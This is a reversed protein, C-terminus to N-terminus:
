RCTALYEVLDRIQAPTLLASMAPMVSVAPTRSRISSLPVKKESGDVLRLIVHSKNESLFFGSDSGGNELSLTMNGYGPVIVASPHLLSQLLYDRGKLGSKDLGPGVIGGIGDMKHCTLCQATGHSFVLDKGRAVDGGELLVRSTAELDNTGFSSRYANVAKRISRDKSADAAMLVDLQISVALRGKILRDLDKKLRKVAHKSELKALAKYAGQQDALVDSDLARTVHPLAAAGKLKVLALLAATRVGVSPDDLLMPLVGELHEPGERQLTAIGALRNPDSMTTNKVRKVVASVDRLMGFQGALDAAKSRLKGSGSSQLENLSDSVLARIDRDRDGPYPRMVGLTPDVPHPDSWHGLAYLATLRTREKLAPNMALALVNKAHQEQGLRFNIQIMREFATISPMRNIAVPGAFRKAHDALEKYAGAIPMAHIARVAEDVLFPDADALFESIRADRHRRMALLVVLREAASAGRRLAWVDDVPMGTVGMVIAHRLFVDQNNNQKAMALLPRLAPAYALKGLAIAAEAQVHASKDTLLPILKEGGRPDGSEGLVRASQRRVHEDDDDLFAFLRGAVTPEVPVLMGIGWIGHLRKLPRDRQALAMSFYKAVRKGRAALEFQAALRVRRDDHGLLDSLREPRLGKFGDRFLRETEKVSAQQIAEPHTVAYIDGKTQGEAANRTTVYDAVYLKGDYGFEAAIILGGQWFTHRDTLAFGAGASEVGFTIVGGRWDSFFFHDDYVAGMSRGPNFSLGCSGGDIYDVAPLVFAPQGEFAMKWYGESTWAVQPRPWKIDSFGIATYFTQLNEFGSQWGLDAGEPLYCLRSRDNQGQNNDVTFLNGFQDFALDQPNRNGTTYRELNRGDKDCRFVAGADLDVLHKGDRTKVDYGRDGTSFYLKGDPGWELGHLDHGNVGMRIGFGELLIKRIDSKGDGERDKMAWLNPINAYYVTGDRATVSSGNGDLPHRFEAFLTREDAVGDRNVDTLRVVRDASRTFWDKPFKGKAIWKKYLAERQAVQTLRLEDLMWFTKRRTDEVGRYLRGSEAVYMRGFGDFCLSVPNDTMGSDAFRVLSYGPDLTVNAARASLTGGQPKKPLQARMVIQDAMIFGGKKESADILEIHARKGILPHVYWFGARLQNSGAGTVTRVVSGDVVLNMCTEGAIAGGGILFSLYGESIEFAPSILKGTAKDGGHSSNAFGKGRNGHVDPQQGVPGAAPRTGFASGEVNWDGFDSGEFEALLVRSRSEAGSVPHTLLGLLIGTVVWM